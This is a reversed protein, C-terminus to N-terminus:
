GVVTCVQFFNEKIKWTLLDSEELESIIKNSDFVALIFALKSIFVLFWIHIM